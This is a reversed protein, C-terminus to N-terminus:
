RRTIRSAWWIRLATTNPRTAPFAPRPLTTYNGSTHCSGCPVTVHTGLLPFPTNNHNFVADAWNITDHCLTCDMPFAVAVHNPIAANSASLAVTSNYADLHCGSCATPVTTYNGGVHCKSNVCTLPPVAHANTLPFFTTHNFTAATWTTTNHCTTCTTPFNATIHNPPNDPYFGATATNTYDKTHCGYCTTPLTTYNGGAHCGVDTCTRPPVAHANTLPFFTSHDFVAGIWTSTTHCQTCTTSFNAAAHNPARRICNLHPRIGLVSRHVPRSQCSRALPLRPADRHSRDGGVSAM